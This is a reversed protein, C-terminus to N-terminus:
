LQHEAIALFAPPQPPQCAPDLVGLASAPCAVFVVEGSVGKLGSMASNRGSSCVNHASVSFTDRRSLALASAPEVTVSLSLLASKLIRVRASDSPAGVWSAARM